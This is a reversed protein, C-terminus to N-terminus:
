TAVCSTWPAGVDSVRFGDGVPALTFIHPHFYPDDIDGRTGDDLYYIASQNDVCDRVVVVKGHHEVVTPHSVVPGRVVEQNLKHLHFEIMRKDLAGGEAVKELRAKATPDDWDGTHTMVESYAIWYERVTAIARADRAARAARLEANSVTHRAPRPSAVNSNGARSSPPTATATACGSAAIMIAVLPVGRALWVRVRRTRARSAPRSRALGRLYPSQCVSARLRRVQLTSITPFTMSLFYEPTGTCRLPSRHGDSFGFAGRRTRVCGVGTDEGSRRAEDMIHATSAAAETQPRARRVKAGREHDRTMVWRTNPISGSADLAVFRRWGDGGPLSITPRPSHPWWPAGTSGRDPYTSRTQDQHERGPM